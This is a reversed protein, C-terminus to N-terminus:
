SQNIMNLCFSPWDIWDFGHNFPNSYLLLVLAISAPALAIDNATLANSSCAFNIAPHTYDQRHLLFYHLHVITTGLVGVENIINCLHSVPDFNLNNVSYWAALNNLGRTNMPIELNILKIILDNLNKVNWM